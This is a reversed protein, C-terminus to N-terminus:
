FWVQHTKDLCSIRIPCWFTSRIAKRVISVRVQHRAVLADLSCTNKYGCCFPDRTHYLRSSSPASLCHEQGHRGAPCDIDWHVALPRNWCAFPLLESNMAIIIEFFIEINKNEKLNRPTQYAMSFDRENESHRVYLMLWGSGSRRGSSKRNSCVEHIIRDCIRYVPRM